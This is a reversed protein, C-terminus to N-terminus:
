ANPLKYNQKLEQVVSKLEKDKTNYKEDPLKDPPLLPDFILIRGKEKNFGVGIRWTPILIEYYLLAELADHYSKKEYGYQERFESTTMAHKHRNKNDVLFDFMALTAGNEKRRWLARKLKRIAEFDAVTDAPNKNTHIEIIWQNPVLDYEMKEYTFNYKPKEIETLVSDWDYNRTEM